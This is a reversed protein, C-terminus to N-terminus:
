VRKIDTPLVSIRRPGEDGVVYTEEDGIQDGSDTKAYLEINIVMGAQVVDSGTDDVWREETELGINHGAHSFRPLLPVGAQAFLDIARRHVDAYLAGPALAHGVEDVIRVIEAHLDVLSRPPEGAYAYRRNDSRYGAIIAGVDLAALRDMGLMEDLAIEPNTEGFTFTIHGVGDAGHAYIRDRAERMLELRSTGPRLVDYLEAVVAEAVALGESLLDIEAPSKVLRLRNVIDDSVILRDGIRQALVATFYHPCSAEIGITGTQGALPELLDLLTERATAFDNFGAVDDVRLPVGEVSFAWCALTVAGDPTVVAFPPLRSRLAHVIPNGASPLTTYGTTYYVSEDTTLLLAALGREEIQAGLDPARDGLPAFL